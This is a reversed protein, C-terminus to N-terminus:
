TYFLVNGEFLRRATRSVVCKDVEDQGRLHVEVPIQGSGHAILVTEPSRTSHLDEPQNKGMQVLLNNLVKRNRRARHAVTGELRVAAALCVAGTLQVSPHVQGMSMSLVSIDPTSHFKRMADSKQQSSVMMIKPTGRTSAAHQINEALGMMIAGKRRIDEITELWQESGHVCSSPLSEADVIVFPNAADILTAQVSFPESLATPTEVTVTDETNGTPLLRGTMSGAPDIFAVKIETGSDSVGAIRYDGQELFYGDEDVAITEVLVRGTNTNFIRIDVFEQGPIAQVIGEDLAFPGVGSAINGCNGSYDVKHKGVAVQAFTYEVDIGPRRSPSVVAVKSTTSTAGGIGDIQRPDGNKSGM